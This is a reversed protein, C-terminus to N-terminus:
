FSAGMNRTPSLSRPHEGLIKFERRSRLIDALLSVTENADLSRIGCTESKDNKPRSKVTLMRSAPEETLELLGLTESEVSSEYRVIDEKTGQRVYWSRLKCCSRM